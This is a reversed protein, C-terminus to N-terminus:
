GNAGGLLVMTHSHLHPRVSGATKGKKRGDEMAEESLLIKICGLPPRELVM